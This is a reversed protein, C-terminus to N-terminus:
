VSPTTTDNSDFIGTSTLIDYQLTALRVGSDTEEKSFYTIIKQFSNISQTNVPDKVGYSFGSKFTTGGKALFAKIKVPQQGVSGFWMCRCDITFSTLNPFQSVLNRTYFICSEEGSGKNDGGWIILDKGNKKIISNQGWGVYEGVSNQGVDPTVIRTRTDLDRGDTFGYTLVLYDFDFIFRRKTIVDIFGSMTATTTINCQNAITYKVTIPIGVGNVAVGTICRLSITTDTNGLLTLGNGTVSVSGNVIKITQYMLNDDRDPLGGVFYINEPDANPNTIDIVYDNGENFNLKKETIIPPNCESYKRLIPLGFM